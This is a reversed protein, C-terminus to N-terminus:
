EWGASRGRWLWYVYRTLKIRAAYTFIFPFCSYMYGLRLPYFPVIIVRGTLKSNQGTCTYLIGRYGVGTGHRSFSLSM